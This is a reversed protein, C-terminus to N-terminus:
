CMHPQLVDSADRANIHQSKPESTKWNRGTGFGFTTNKLLLKTAM